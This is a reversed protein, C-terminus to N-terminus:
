GRKYAAREKYEVEILRGLFQTRWDDPFEPVTPDGDLTIPGWHREIEDLLLDYLEQLLLSKEAAVTGARDEDQRRTLVALRANLVDLRTDLGRYKAQFEPSTRFVLTKDDGEAM